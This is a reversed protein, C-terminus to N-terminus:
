MIADSHHSTPDQRSRRKCEGAGGGAFNGTVIEMGMSMQLRRLASWFHRHAQLVEELLEFLEM